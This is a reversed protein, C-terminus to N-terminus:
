SHWCHVLARFRVVSPLLLRWRASVPSFIAASRSQSDGVAGVVREIAVSGRHEPRIWGFAGVKDFPESGIDECSIDTAPRAFECRGARRQLVEHQRIDIAEALDGAVFWGSRLLGEVVGDEQPRMRGHSTPTRM